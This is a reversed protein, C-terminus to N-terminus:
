NRDGELYGDFTKELRASLFSSESHRMTKLRRSLLWGLPSMTFTLVLKTIPLGRRTITPRLSCAAKKKGPQPKPTVVSLVSHVGNPRCIEAAVHRARNREGYTM